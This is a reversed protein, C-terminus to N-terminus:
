MAMAPPLSPLCFIRAEHLQARVRDNPMEGLFNVKVNLKDALQQFEERQPGDGVITLEAQPVLQQVQAMARILVGAAKKEVLRGVFLVRLPREHIPTKGLSFTQHDVGIHLVSVKHEPIGYM